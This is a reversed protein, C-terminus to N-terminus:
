SGEWSTVKPQAAIFECGARLGASSMERGTDAAYGLSAVHPTRIPRNAGRSHPKSYRNIVVPRLLLSAQLPTVSALVPMRAALEADVARSAVSQGSTTAGRATPLSLGPRGDRFATGRLRAALCPAPPAHGPQDRVPHPVPQASFMPVLRVALPVPRITTTDASPGRRPTTANGGHSGIGTFHQNLGRGPQTRVSAASRCCLEIVYNRDRGASLSHAAVHDRCASCAVAALFVVIGNGPKRSHCTLGPVEDQRRQEIISGHHIQHVLQGVFLEKSAQIGAALNLRHPVRAPDLDCGYSIVRM